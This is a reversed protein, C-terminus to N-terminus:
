SNAKQATERQKALEVLRDVDTRSLAGPRPTQPAARTRAAVLGAGGIVWLVSGSVLAADLMFPWLHRVIIGYSFLAVGAMWLLLVMM